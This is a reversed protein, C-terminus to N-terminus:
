SACIEFTGNSSNQCIHGLGRDHYLINSDRWFTGEFRKEMM